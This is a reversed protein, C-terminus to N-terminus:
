TKVKFKETGYISHFARAMAAERANTRKRAARGEKAQDDWRLQAESRSPSFIKRARLRM